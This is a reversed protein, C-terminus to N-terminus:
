PTTATLEITVIGRPRLVDIAFRGEVLARAQNREFLAGGGDWRIKIGEAGYRVGVATLDLAFATGAAIDPSTVVPVGWAKREGRDIPGGLDFSGSTIRNTEIAEWDDPNLVFAGAKYGLNELRTVAARLTTIADARFPQQQVGTTTLIGQIEDAEQGAVVLQQLKSQIGWLLQREIFSDLTSNDNLLYIDVPESLHAIVKLENEVSEVTTTSTPKLEGPAVVDANNTYETQRLYKYTPSTQEVAPILNVISAPAMGLEVPNAEVLPMPSLQSGAAVIGKSRVDDRERFTDGIVKGAAKAGRGGLSLYKSGDGSSGKGLDLLEKLQSESREISDIRGKLELAEEGLKEVQQAEAPTIARGAGKASGITAQMKKQIATLEERLATTSGTNKSM